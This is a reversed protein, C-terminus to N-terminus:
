LPKLTPLGGATERRESTCNEISMRIKPNLKANEFHMRKISVHENHITPLELRKLLVAGFNAVSSRFRNTTNSAIM